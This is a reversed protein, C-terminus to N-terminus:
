EEVKYAMQEMQEHTVVSKIGNEFLTIDGDGDYFGICKDEYSLKNNNNTFDVKNGNVYDGVELIDIINYSAKKITDKKNIYFGNLLYERENYDKISIIKNIFGSYTRYYMNERLELKM